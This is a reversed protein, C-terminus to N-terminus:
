SRALRDAIDSRERELAERRHDVPPRVPAIRALREMEAIILAGAKVLAQRRHTYKLWVNDWDSPWAELALPNGATSLLFAAAARALQGDRYADDREATFGEKDLQRQRETAIDEIAYRRVLDTIPEKLSSRRALFVPDGPDVDGLARATVSAEAEAEPVPSTPVEKVEPVMGIEIMLGKLDDVQARVAALKADLASTDANFRLTIPDAEVEIRDGSGHGGIGRARAADEADLQAASAYGEGSKGGEGHGDGAAAYSVTSRGVGDGRARGSFAFAVADGLDSGRDIGTHVIPQFRLKNGTATNRSAVRGEFEATPRVWIVGDENQYITVPELTAEQKGEGLKRYLGGRYHRHTPQFTGVAADAFDRGTGGEFATDRVKAGQERVMEFPSAYVHRGDRIRDPFSYKISTANYVETIAKEIDIDLRACFLMFYIFTDAAEKAIFDLAEKETALHRSPDASKNVLGEQVRWLKKLANACEGLEGATALLWREPSWGMIGADGHWRYARRVNAVMLSKISLDM